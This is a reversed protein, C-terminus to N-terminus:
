KVELDEYKVTPTNVKLTVVTRLISDDPLKDYDRKKISPKWEIRAKEEETLTDQISMIDERKVSLSETAACTVQIEGFAAHKTGSINEGLINKVIDKRASMEQAKVSKLQAALSIWNRINEIGIM